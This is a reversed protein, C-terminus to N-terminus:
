PVVLEVDYNRANTPSSATFPLGSDLWLTENGSAYVPAPSAHWSKGADDSYYIRYHEGAISRFTVLNTSGLRSVHSPLGFSGAGAPVDSPVIVTSLTPNLNPAIRKANYFSVIQSIATNQPLPVGHHVIWAGNSDRLAARRKATDWVSWGTPLGNIHLDYGTIPVSNNNTTTLRWEFLGTSRNLLPQATPPTVEPAAQLGVNYLLSASASLGRRDTVTVIVIVQGETSGSLPVTLYLLGTNSDIYSDGGIVESPFAQFSYSLSDPLTSSAKDDTDVDSFYASTSVLSPATVIILGMDSGVAVPYDNIPAVVFDFSRTSHDSLTLIIRVFGNRNAAPTISFSRATGTGSVSINAVPVLSAQDSGVSSIEVGDPLTFEVPASTTDENTVYDGILLQYLLNTATCGISDTAQVFIPFAGTMTPTGSLVGESSLELGPPLVHSPEATFTLAGLGGTANFTESFNQGRIATSNVPNQVVIAPCIGDGTVSITYPSASPDNTEIHIAATRTGLATPAFVVSLTISEGPAVTNIAPASVTFESAHTGSKTIAGIQLEETGTNTMTFTQPQGNLGVEGSGLSVPTSQKSLGMIMQGNAAIAQVAAWNLPANEVGNTSWSVVTGDRKLAVNLGQQTSPNILGAAVSQVNELGVPLPQLGQRQGRDYWWGVASVTGNQDCSLTWLQGCVLSKMTASQSTRSVEPAGWATFRGDAALATANALNASISTVDNPANHQATLAMAQPGWFVIQGNGKLAMGFQNGAVVSRVDALDSPYAMLPDTASGWAIVKGDRKIALSAGSSATVASVGKLGLPVNTQGESNDGWAVVSGDTRMALAHSSGLAIARVDTLGSPPTLAAKNGSMLVSSVQSLPSGTPTTVVLQPLGRRTITLTYTLKAGDKATVVVQITNIGERLAVAVSAGPHIPAVRNIQVTANSDVLTPSITTSTVNNPVTASYNKVEPDFAEALAATSLKLDSLRNDETVVMTYSSKAKPCTGSYRASVTFYYTGTKTPTGDIDGFAELFLGPPLAGSTITYEADTIDSGNIRLSNVVNPQGIIRPELSAPSLTLARCAVTLKYPASTASCGYPGNATALITYSGSLRPTGVLTGDAAIAVGDPLGLGSFAVIGLGGSQNFRVGAPIPLGATATIPVPNTITINPCLATGKIEIPYGLAAGDSTTVAITSKSVSPQRPTFQVTFTTTNGPFLTAKQPQSAEFGNHRATANGIDALHLATTGTNRITFTRTVNGGLYQSGFDVEGVRDIIAASSQYGGVISKVGALGEPFDTRFRGTMPDWAVVSGDKKLALVLTGSSLSAHVTAFALAKVNSIAPTRDTARQNWVVVTGNALVAATRDFTAAIAVANAVDSPVYTCSGWLVVSGDNKLAAAHNVGAAIAKVNSLGSPVTTKGYALSGWAKVTGDDLLALNYDFGAAVQRVQGFTPPPAAGSGYGWAILNGLYTTAVAHNTGAAISRLGVDQPTSLGYSIPPPDGWTAIGGDQRMAVGFLTGTSISQLGSLDGSVRTGPGEFGDWGWAILKDHATPIPGSGGEVVFSLAPKAAALGTGVLIVDHNMLMPDNSRLRLTCYRAGEGTPLFTLSLTTSEGPALSNTSLGGIHFDNTDMGIKTPPALILTASGTNKIVMDMTNHDQRVVREGIKLVPIRRTVALGLQATVAVSEINDLASFSSPKVSGVAMVTGDDCVGLVNGSGGAAIKRVETWHALGVKDVSGWGVVTGDSKLAVSHTDGTAIAVVGKLGKPVEIAGSKQGWAVVTGDTKLALIHDHAAAIAKVKALGKPLAFLSPSTHIYGGSWVVVSGDSKLGADFSTGAAVGVFDVASSVSTPLANVLGHIDWEIVRGDRKLGLTRSQGLAISKLDTAESPYDSIFSPGMRWELVTGDQSLEVVRNDLTIIQALQPSVVHSSAYGVLTPEGWAVVRSDGLLPTGAPFELGLHAENSATPMAAHLRLAAVLFLGCQTLSKM